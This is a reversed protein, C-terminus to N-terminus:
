SDGLYVAQGLAIAGDNPPVNLPLKVNPFEKILLELLIKNQFVGGSVVLPLNSYNKYVTKIIKIITNFFKTIAVSKDKELIIEKILPSIDIKEDKIKFNFSDKINSDYYEELLMGAEGEFSIIQIIDLLSAVADFLRGVSSSLPSNISNQWSKYLLNLEFKSFARVTPINLNLAEKDFVDFLLSLAVRRPEKIAKSAGLLKFYNIHAVRKFSKYDGVLFEGGWLNGDLGYGTGDFVVGFASKLNHECMVSLMHAYHHQIQTVKGFSKAVKTSEYNPHMDCMLRKPKFNYIKLFNDINKKYYNVSNITELDGIHPSLIVSSDKAIAFTNKQNAGFSLTPLPIKFNLNIQSPAFGRARRLIIQKNKLAMVVSDDCGNVIKRNHELLYDYIFNLNKIENLNTALPEGSINASTAIIPSNLKNLLLILLPTYPLFLGIKSINPAIQPNQKLLTDKAKLLVIARIQSTLLKEEFKNIFAYKKAQNLDKVMVALPKQPRNKRKRLLKVANINLADCVLHYGGVGKIAVIKGDKILSAVKNIIDKQNLSIKNFNNDLLELTPGCDFCGIPQAHFRRDLPNLYEKQCNKCMKFFKMSTNKRDYPLSYIISYRVGCNTCTIFPYLYRKNNKDFLEKQCDKCVNLDPPVNAFGSDQVSSQLITFDSFNQTKIKQVKLNDIKALPPLNNQLNKLFLELNENTANLTIEVGLSSNKVYGVLNLKKALNYVFPRFGVGQVTGSIIIKYSHM